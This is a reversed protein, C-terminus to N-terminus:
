TNDMTLPIKETGARPISRAETLEINLKREIRKTRRVFYVVICTSIVLLGFLVWLGSRTGAAQPPSIRIPDYSIFRFESLNYPLAALLNVIISEDHEYVFENEATDVILKSYNRANAMIIACATVLEHNYTSYLLYHTGANDVETLDEYIPKAWVLRIGDEERSLSIEGDDGPVITKIGSGVSAYAVIEYSSGQFYKSSATTTVTIYYRGLANNLIGIMRGDTLRNLSIDPGLESALTWNSSIELKQMGSCPIVYVSLRGKNEVTIEYTKKTAPAYIREVIAKEFNLVITDDFETCHLQFYGLAETSGKVALYLSQNRALTFNVDLMSYYAEYDEKAFVFDATTADPYQKTSSLSAYVEPRFDTQQPTLTCGLGLSLLSTSSYKFYLTDTSSVSYTQPWGSILTVYSKRVHATLSYTSATLAYVGIYFSGPRFHPDKESIQIHDMQSVLISFWMANDLSIDPGTSVFLDSDGSFSALSIDIDSIEPVEFYYMKWEGQTSIEGRQPVGNELLSIKMDHIATLSYTCNSDGYVGIVINCSVCFSPCDSPILLSHQSPSSLSSWIYSSITPLKEYLEDSYLEQTNAYIIAKGSIPTITILIDNKMSSQYYYFQMTGQEVTGHEPIGSVLKKVTKPNQTVRITFSCPDFGFVGIIYTGKIGIGAIKSDNRSIVLTESKWTQAKWDYDTQTPLLDLSKRVYMDPDGSSIPSLMIIFDQDERNCYYTFYTFNDQGVSGLFAVGDVLAVMEDQTMSIIFECEGVCDVSVAVICNNQCAQMMMTSDIKIRETHLMYVQSEFDSFTSNPMPINYVDDQMSTYLKAFVKVDGASPQVNILLSRDSTVYSYYYKTGASILSVQTSPVPLMSIITKRAHVTLSYVAAQPAYVSIYISCHTPDGHHYEEQIGPCNERLDEWEIRIEDSGNRDSAFQHMEASPHTNNVSIYLKPRGTYATLVVFISERGLTVPYTYYNYTESPVIDIFPFNDALITTGNGLQLVISYTASADSSFNAVKVLLAYNSNMLYYPNTPPVVITNVLETSSSNAQWYYWFIHKVFDINEIRNTAYLLFKGTIPSLTVRITQRTAETYHIPFFYLRHQMCTNYLTDKQPIGPYLQITTNGSPHIEKVVITFRSPQSSYVALHYTSNLTIFDRGKKYTISDVELGSLASSSDYVTTSPASTQSVYLDPNGSIPTVIFYVESASVRSLHYKYYRYGSEAIMGTHPKGAMLLIETNDVIGVISYDSSEASAGYIGITYNGAASISLEELGYTNNSYLTGNAPALVEAETFICSSNCQKAYIDPNGTAASLHIQLEQQPSITITFYEFEKHRVMGIYPLGPVMAISDSNSNTVILLYASPKKGYVAISYYSGPHEMQAERSLEAIKSGHDTYAWDFSNVGAPAGVKIYLDCDGSFVSLKIKLYTSEPLSYKYRIIEEEHVLGSIPQSGLVIEQGSSLVLSYETNELGVVSIKLLLGPRAPIEVTKGFNWNETQLSNEPMPEAESVLLEAKGLFYTLSLKLTSVGVPSQYTYLHQHCEPLSKHMPTSDPLATYHTNGLLLSYKTTSVVLLFYTSNASFYSSDLIFSNEHKQDFDEPSPPKDKRLYLSVSFSATVTTFDTLLPKFEYVSTGESYVIEQYKLESAFAELFLYFIFVM